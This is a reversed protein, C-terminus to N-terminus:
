MPAPLIGQEGMWEMFREDWLDNRLRPVDFVLLEAPREADIWMELLAILGATVPGHGTETAMFIPPADEPVVVDMLSPGYLSGVFNPAAGPLNGVVTGFAVGGGASVGIMGIRDPDVGWEEANARVMRLAVQADDVALELVRSLEEDDPAPNANGNVIVLDPLGRAGGPAGGAPPQTGPGPQPRPAIQLTRYKLLFVAIGEANFQKVMEHFDEGVSLGRLAGGPLWVIGVGNARAPHPLYVTMEPDHVNSYNVGGNGRDTIVEAQSWDESGPAVGSYLRLTQQAQLSTSLLGVFCTLMWLKRSVFRETVKSKM